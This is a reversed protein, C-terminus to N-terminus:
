LFSKIDMASHYVGLVAVSTGKEKVLYAIRYHGYLLVRIKNSNIKKYVYGINPYDALLQAKRFIGDITSDAAAVNTQAIFQYITHLNKSAEETWIIEM